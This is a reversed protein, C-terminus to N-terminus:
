NQPMTQARFLDIFSRLEHPDLDSVTWYTLDGATWHEITSGDRHEEGAPGGGTKPAVTVSIVHQDHRYVLTPVPKGAVIDIRGGALPFGRDAFDPAEPAITTRGNFWPKVVHRNSSAIDFPQPAALGRLHGALVAAPTADSGPSFGLYTAGSGILGGGLLGVLLMAALPQWQPRAPRGTRRPPDAFGIQQVIRARLAVPAPPTVLASQVAGSLAGLREALARLAPDAALKREMALAEGPSLEGDRYANLLLFTEDDVNM